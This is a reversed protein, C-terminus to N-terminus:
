HSNLYDKMFLNYGSWAKYSGPRDARTRYNERALAAWTEKEAGSLANWATYGDTFKQQQALQPGTGPNGRDVYPYQLQVTVQNSPDGGIIAPARQYTRTKAITGSAATGIRLEKGTVPHPWTPVLVVPM